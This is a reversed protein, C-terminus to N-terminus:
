VYYIIDRGKKIELLEHGVINNDSIIRDITSDDPLLGYLNYALLVINTDTPCRFIRQQKANNAVEFLVATTYNILQGLANISQFDPIFSGATAGNASQIEDLSAIYDNYAGTVLEIMDLVSQRNPYTTPTIDTVTTLGLTSILSACNNEWIRKLDPLHLGLLKAKLTNYANVLFTARKFVTNVFYAPINLFNQAAQIAGLSDHLGNNIAANAKAYYNNALTIDASVTAFALQLSQIISMNDNMDNIDGVNMAPIDVAFSQAFANDTNLKLDAIVDVPSINSGVRNQGITQIVTGTIKTVNLSDDNFELGIPQVYLSGYLPHSITWPNPNLSSIKFDQEKILNDSGQLFIEINYKTGLPKRRVVLTGSVDKFNFESVNYEQAMSANLWNVTYKVGDGTTITYDKKINELWAM